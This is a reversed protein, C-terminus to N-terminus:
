MVCSGERRNNRQVRSLKWRCNPGGRFGIRNLNGGASSDLSGEVSLLWPDGQVGLKATKRVMRASTAKWKMHIPESTKMVQVWSTPKKFKLLALM